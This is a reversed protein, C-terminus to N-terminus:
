SLLHRRAQFAKLLKESIQPLRLLVERVKAGPIRLLRTRGRIIATVVVPRRTLLDIDGAFEGKLHTAVVRDNDTPNIIEIEGQDVLYFDIDSDGARFVIDGDDFECYTGLSEIRSIEDATLTPFAIDICETAM